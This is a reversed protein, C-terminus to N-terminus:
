IYTVSFAMSAAEKLKFLLLVLLFRLRAIMRKWQQTSAMNKLSFSLSVLVALAFTPRALRELLGSSSLHAPFLAEKISLYLHAGFGTRHVEPHPRKNNLRNEEPERDVKLAREEHQRRRREEEKRGQELQQKKAHMRQKEEQRKRDSASREEEAQLRVAEALDDLAKAALTDNLAYRHGIFTRAEDVQNQKVLIHKVYFESIREFGEDKKVSGGEPLVPLPNEELVSSVQEKLLGLSIGNSIEIIFCMLVLDPDASRVDHSYIVMMQDFVAGRLFTDRITLRQALSMDPFSGVEAPFTGTSASSNSLDKLLLDTLSLYLRFINVKLSQVELTTQRPSHKFLESGPQTIDDILGIVSRWATCFDRNLYQKIAKQYSSKLRTHSSIDLMSSSMRRESGETDDTLTGSSTLRKAVEIQNGNRPYGLSTQSSANGNLVIQSM